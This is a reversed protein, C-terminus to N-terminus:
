PLLIYYSNNNKDNQTLQNAKYVCLSFTHSFLLYDNQQLRRNAFVYFELNTGKLEGNQIGRSEYLSKPESDLFERAEAEKLNEVNVDQTLENRRTYAPTLRRQQQQKLEEM